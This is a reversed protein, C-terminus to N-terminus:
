RAPETVGPASALLRALRAHQPDTATWRLRREDADTAIAEIEIELRDPPLWGELRDAWEIVTVGATEREDLLGAALAEEPDDLRYADVHFLRLRGVHENMLVFTPSNVVSTVGLGEAIGKALVTKGAGLPGSLALLTAPEANAGLVRGLSLTEEASSSRLSGRAIERGRSRHAPADSPALRNM